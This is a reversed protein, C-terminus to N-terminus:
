DVLVQMKKGSIKSFNKKDGVSKPNFKLPQIELDLAVALKAITKLTMNSGDNLLKSIYPQSKGIRRVLELLSVGLEKMRLCIQENIEIMLGAVLYDQDNELEEYLEKSWDGYKM